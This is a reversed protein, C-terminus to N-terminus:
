LQPSSSLRDRASAESFVPSVVIEASKPRPHSLIDNLRIYYCFRLFLFGSHHHFCARRSYLCSVAVAAIVCCTHTVLFSKTFTRKDNHKADIQGERAAQICVFSAQEM